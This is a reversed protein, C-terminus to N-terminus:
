AHTTGVAHAKRPGGEGHDNLERLLDWEELFYPVLDLLLCETQVIINLACRPEILKGLCQALRM